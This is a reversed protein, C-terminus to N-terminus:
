YGEMTDKIPRLFSQRGRVRTIIAPFAIQNASFPFNIGGGHFFPLFPNLSPDSFNTAPGAGSYHITSLKNFCIPVSQAAAEAVTFSRGFMAKTLNSASYM